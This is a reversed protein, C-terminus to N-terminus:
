HVAQGTPLIKDHKCVYVCVYTVGVGWVRHICKDDSVHLNGVHMYGCHTNRMCVWASYTYVCASVVNQVLGPWKLRASKIFQFCDM